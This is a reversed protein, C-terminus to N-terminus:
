ERLCAKTASSLYVTAEYNGQSRTLANQKVRQLVKIHVKARDNGPDTAALRGVVGAFQRISMRFLTLTDQALTVLSTVKTGPITLTLTTSDISFGLYDISQTPGLM